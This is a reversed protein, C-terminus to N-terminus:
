IIRQQPQQQHSNGQPQPREYPWIRVNQGARSRSPGGVRQLKQQVKIEGRLREMIRAQEVLAPFEKIALPTM